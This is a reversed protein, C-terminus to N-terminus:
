TTNRCHMAVDLDTRDTKWTNSRTNFAPPDNTPERVRPLQYPDHPMQMLINNKEPEATLKSVVLKELQELATFEDDQKEGKKGKLANTLDKIVKIAIDAPTVKPQTIYQHKFNVTNSIREDNTCKVFICHSRYHDLSTQLYWRDM